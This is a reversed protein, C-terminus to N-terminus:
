GPPDWTWIPHAVGIVDCRLVPGFYRSDFSYPHPQLLFYEGETLTLCGDWSPLPRGERDKEFTEAITKGNVSVVGTGDVKSRCVLDGGVAAVQKVLPIEPALIGRAVIMMDILPAPRVVVIEGRLPLRHEVRYFGLPASGSGNYLVLPAHAQLSALTVVFGASITALITIRNRLRLIDGRM